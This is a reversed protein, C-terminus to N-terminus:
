IVENDSVVSDAYRVALKESYRLFWKAAKGWKNRKWELGDINVIVREKSILKVLPLITCGSVGLILLTNSYRLASFISVIDYLISQPGNAKLPVYKLHADNYRKQKSKYSKGSCYVTINFRNALHKTLHEALTEFGGYNAPLGVTGIISIRM